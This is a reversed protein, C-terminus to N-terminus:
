AVSSQIIHQYNSTNELTELISGPPRPWTLKYYMNSVLSYLVCVTLDQNRGVIIGIFFKFYKRM